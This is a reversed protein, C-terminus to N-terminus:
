DHDNSLFHIISDFTNFQPQWGTQQITTTLDVEMDGVLRDTISTKNTLKGVLKFASAPVPILMSRSSTGQKIAKVMATTSIVDGNNVVFTGRTPQEIIHAILSVLNDIYLLSRRNKNIGGLPLPWNKKIANTLSSFTGKGGKGYVMCPRLITLIQSTNQFQSAFLVKLQNEAEAKSRGYSDKSDVPSKAKISSLFIFHGVGADIASKALRTAGAVNIDHLNDEPNLADANAACHIVVDVDTLLSQYDTQGNIEGVNVVQTNPLQILTPSEKRVPLVLQLDKVSGSLYNVLHGGIFGTAGTILIKKM